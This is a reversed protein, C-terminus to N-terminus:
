FPLYAEPDLKMMLWEIYDSVYDSVLVNYTVYNKKVQVTLYYYNIFRKGM